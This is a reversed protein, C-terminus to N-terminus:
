RSGKACCSKGKGKAKGEGGCSAAATAEAGKKACCSKGEAKGAGNASCGQM